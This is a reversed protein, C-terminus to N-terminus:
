PAIGSLRIGSRGGVAKAPRRAPRGDGCALPESSSPPPPRPRPRRRPTPPGPRPRRPRCSRWGPAPRSWPSCSPRTRRSCASAGTPPATASRAGTPRPTSSSAPPTSSSPRPASPTTPAPVSSRRCGAAWDSGPNYWSPNELKAIIKFIGTPTPFGAAGTAVPWSKVIVGKDYLYLKNEGTRVLIVKNLTDDARGAARDPTTVLRVSGDGLQVGQMIAQRSAEVDLTRGAKEPTFRLFGTSIDIDANQPAEKVAEAARALVADLDGDGWEPPADVFVPESPGLVKTAWGPSSTARPAACSPPDCRGRCTSGSASTGRRPPSRSASPRSSSRGACRSRSRRGSGCWRPRSTSAGSPSTASSPARPCAPAPTATSPSSSSAALGALVLGVSLGLVVKPSAWFRKGPRWPSADFDLEVGHSFIRRMETLDDVRLLRCAALFVIAGALGGAVLQVVDANLRDVVVVMAVWALASAVAVRALVRAAPRLRLGGVRRALLRGAVVAGAVYCLSHALALGRVDIAPFLAVTAAIFVANLVLNVLMPTRADQRAYFARLFLLFLSFPLLGIAFLQLMRALLESSGASVVGHELLTSILPRALALYAATAPLM